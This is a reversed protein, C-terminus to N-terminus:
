QIHAWSSRSRVSNITGINVSYKNALQRTTLQSRIERVAEETLKACPNREGALVHLVNHAHLSNERRTVYELNEAFNNKPDGDKHNTQLSPPKEGIFMIAVLDHVYFQKQFGQRCLIVRYYGHSDLSPHLIKGVHTLHRKVSPLVRKIQGHNSVAYAPFHTVVIWQERM